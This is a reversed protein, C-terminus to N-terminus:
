LKVGVQRLGGVMQMALTRQAPTVANITVSLPHSLSNINAGGPSYSSPMATRAFGEPPAAIPTGWAQQTNFSLPTLSIGGPAYPSAINPNSIASSQIQTMTPAMFQNYYQGETGLVGTQAGTQQNISYLEAPTTNNAPNLPSTAWDGAVNTGTPFSTPIPTKLSAEMTAINDAATTIANGFRTVADTSNGMAQVNQHVPNVMTDLGVKLSSTTVNLGHMSSDLNDANTNVSSTTLNLDSMTRGLDAASMDSVKLGSGGGGGSLAAAVAQVLESGITNIAGWIDVLHDLDPLYQDLTLQIAVLQALAGRTSVEVEGMLNELRAMQFGQVISSVVQVGLGILPVAGSLASGIGSLAGGLGGAAGAAGSAAASAATAATGAAVAATNAVVAATDAADAASAATTAATDAVTATAAATTAVTDSTTAVTDAITASTDAVESAAGATTAATDGVMATTDATTAATDATTAATNAVTAAEAGAMIPSFTSSVGEMTAQIVNGSAMLAATSAFTATLAVSASTEAITAGTSSALAATNPALAVTNAAVAPSVPTMAATLASLAATNAGVATTNASVATDTTGAAASSLPAAAAGSPLQLPQGNVMVQGASTLSVTGKATAISNLGPLGISEMLSSIGSMMDKILGSSTLLNDVINKIIEKGINQLISIAASEFGKWQVIAGAISTGISDTISKASQFEQTQLQEITVTQGQAKLAADIMVNYSNTLDLLTAKQTAFGENVIDFADEASTAYQQLGHQSHGGFQDIADITDKITVATGSWDVNFQGVTSAASDFTNTTDKVAAPLGAFIRLLDNSPADTSVIQADLNALATVNADLAPNLSQAADAIQQQTSGLKQMDTVLQSYQNMLDLLNNGGSSVPVLSQTAGTDLPVNSHLAWQTVAADLKQYGQTTIDLQNQLQVQEGITNTYAEGSQLSDVTTHAQLALKTLQIQLNGYAVNLQDSDLIGSSVVAQWESQLKQLQDALSGPGTSVSFGTSAVGLNQFADALFQTAAVANDIATKAAQLQNVLGQANAVAQALITSSPTQQFASQLSALSSQASSLASTLTGYDSAMKATMQDVSATAAAFAAPDAISAAINATNPALANQIAKLQQQMFADNALNLQPNGGFGGPPILNGIGQRLINGLTQGIQLWGSLDIGTAASLSRLGSNVSDSIATGLDHFTSEMQLVFTHITSESGTVAEVLGQKFGQWAASFDIEQSFFQKVSTWFDSIRQLSERTNTDWAQSLDYAQAVAEKTADTMLALAPGAQDGFLQVALQARQIPDPLAQFQDVLNSIAELRNASFATDISTGLKDLAATFTDGGLLNTLADPGLGLLGSATQLTNVTQFSEGMQAAVIAQQQILNSYDLTLAVAAVGVAAIGAALGIAAVNALGAGTIFSPVTETAFTGVAAAASTIGATISSFMSGATAVGSGVAAAGTVASEMSAAASAAAESVATAGESASAAVSSWASSAATQVTAFEAAAADGIGAFAGSVKSQLAAINVSDFAGGVASTIKNGIDSFNVNSLASGIAGSISSTINQLAGSSVLQQIIISGLGGGIAAGFGSALSSAIKQGATEAVKAASDFDGQLSSYDGTIGISVGGIQEAM